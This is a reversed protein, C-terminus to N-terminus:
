MTQLHHRRYLIATQCHPVLMCMINYAYSCKVQFCEAQIYVKCSLTISIDESSSQSTFRGLTNYQNEM